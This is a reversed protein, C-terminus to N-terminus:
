LCQGVEKIAISFLEPSINMPLIIKFGSKEIVIPDKVEQTITPFGIKIPTVKHELKEIWRMLTSQILNNDKCFKHQSKDECNNWNDVHKQWYEKGKRAM